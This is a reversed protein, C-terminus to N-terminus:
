TGCVLAIRHTPQEDLLSWIAIDDGGGAVSPAAIKSSVLEELEPLSLALPRPMTVGARCDSPALFSAIIDGDFEAVGFVSRFKIRGLQLM